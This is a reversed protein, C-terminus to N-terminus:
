ADESDAGDPDAEREGASEHAAPREALLAGLDRVSPREKGEPEDAPAEAPPASPLEEAGGSAALGDDAPADPAPRDARVPADAASGGPGEDSTDEERTPPSPTDPTAPPGIRQVSRRQEPAEVPGRPPAPSDEAAREGEADRELAVTVDGLRRGVDELALAVEGDVSGSLALITESAEMRLATAEAAVAPGGVEEAREVSAAADGFLRPLELPRLPAVAVAESLRMRAFKLNLRADHEPARTVLLHVSEAGRKVHYLAEGPLASSSLAVSVGSTAFLILSLCAVVLGQRVRARRARQMRAGVRHLVWLHRAATDVDVTTAFSRHILERLEEDAPPDRRAAGRGDADFRDDSHM